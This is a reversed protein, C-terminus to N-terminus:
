SLFQKLSVQSLCYYSRYQFRQPIRYLDLLEFLYKPYAAVPSTKLPFSLASGYDDQTLLKKSRLNNVASKERMECTYILMVPFSLVVLVGVGLGIWFNKAIMIIVVDWTTVLTLCLLLQSSVTSAKFFFFTIRSM